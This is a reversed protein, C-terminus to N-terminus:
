SADGGARGVVLLTLGVMVATVSFSRGPYPTATGVAYGTVGGVTLAVGLALYRNM